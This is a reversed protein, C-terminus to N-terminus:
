EWRRLKVGAKQELQSKAYLESVLVRGHIRMENDFMLVVTPPVNYIEVEGSDKETFVGEACTGTKKLAQKIREREDDKFHFIM